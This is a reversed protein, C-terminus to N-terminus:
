ADAQSNETLNNLTINSDYPKFIVGQEEIEEFESEMEFKRLHRSEQKIKKRETKSLCRHKFGYTKQIRTNWKKFNKFIQRWRSNM